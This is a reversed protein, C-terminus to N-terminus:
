EYEERFRSLIWQSIVNMALTILFLTMGVAFITQYGISGHPTDGLSAQVIYATMTQMSEFANLTLNPMNGAAIAVAMTEGVARSLGLIFSAIIGSLASPVVVRLSVEMKTAGLGYAGERLATPVARLADESLSSVTPIIMIGVVIAASAANFIETAPHVTRLLPTIFTLAFYGYVVTPIGALIELMPKLVGRLRPGAYESLFIASLLGVPVAIVAAGAAVVFSGAMLPLVGFRPNQFLPTWQTGFLFKVPSVHSFFTLTEGLLVVVIGLTILTSAAASAFLILGIAREKLNRSRRFSLAAPEAEVAGAARTVDSM